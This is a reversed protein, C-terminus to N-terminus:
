WKKKKDAKAKIETKIEPLEAKIAAIHAKISDALKVNEIDYSKLANMTEEATALKCGHKSLIAFIEAHEKSCFNEADYNPKGVSCAPCFDYTAGCIRCTYTNKRAM